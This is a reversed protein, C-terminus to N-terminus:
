VKGLALRFNHHFMGFDWPQPLHMEKEKGSNQRKRLRSMPNIMGLMSPKSLDAAVLFLVDNGCDQSCKLESVLSFYM